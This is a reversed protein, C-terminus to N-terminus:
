RVYWPSTIVLPDLVDGELLFELFVVQVVPVLKQLIKHNGEQTWSLNKRQFKVENQVDSNRCHKM